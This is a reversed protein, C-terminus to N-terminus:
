ASQGLREAAPYLCIDLSEHMASGVPQTAKNKRTSYWLGQDTLPCIRKPLLLLCFLRPVQTFIVYINYHFLETYMQFQMLEMLNKKKM